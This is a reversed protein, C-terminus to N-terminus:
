ATGATKGKGSGIGCPIGSRLVGETYSRGTLGLLFSCSSGLAPRLRFNLTEMGSKTAFCRLSAFLQIPSVAGGASLRWPGDFAVQNASDRSATAFKLLRLAAKLFMGHM